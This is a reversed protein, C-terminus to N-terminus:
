GDAAGDRFGGDVLHRARAHSFPLLHAPAVLASMVQSQHPNRIEITLQSRSFKAADGL